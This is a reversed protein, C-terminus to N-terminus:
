NRCPSTSRSTILGFTIFRMFRVIEHLATRDEVRHRNASCLTHWPHQTIGCQSPPRLQAFKELAFNKRILRRNEGLQHGNLLLLPPTKGAEGQTEAMERLRLWNTGDFNESPRVNKGIRHANPITPAARPSRGQHWNAFVKFIKKSTKGFFLRQYTSPNFEFRNIM